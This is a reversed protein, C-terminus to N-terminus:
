SSSLGLPRLGATELRQPKAARGPPSISPFWAACTASWHASAHLRLEVQVHTHVCMLRSSVCTLSRARAGAQQECPGIGFLGHGLLPSGQRLSHALGFGILKISSSLSSLSHLFDWFKGTKIKHYISQGFRKHWINTAGMFKREKCFGMKTLSVSVPHYRELCEQTEVKWVVIYGGISGAALYQGCPSWAM